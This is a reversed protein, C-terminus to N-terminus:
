CLGDNAAFLEKQNSRPSSLPGLPQEVHFSLPLSASPKPSIVGLDASQNSFELFLVYPQM